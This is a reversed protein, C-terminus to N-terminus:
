KIGYAIPLLSNIRRAFHLVQEPQMVEAFNIELFNPLKLCKQLPMRQLQYLALSPLLRDFFM